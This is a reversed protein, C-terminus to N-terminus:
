KVSPYRNNASSWVMGGFRLGCSLVAGGGDLCGAVAGVLRALVLALRDLLLSPSQVLAAKWHGLASQPRVNGDAVPM